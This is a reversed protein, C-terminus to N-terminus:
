VSAALARERLEDLDFGEIVPKNPYFTAEAAARIVTERIGQTNDLFEALKGEAALAIIAQMRMTANSAKGRDGYFSILENFARVVPNNTNRISNWRGTPTSRRTAIPVLNDAEAAAMAIDFARVFEDPDLASAVDAINKRIMMTM